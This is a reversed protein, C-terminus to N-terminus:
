LGQLVVLLWRWIIACAQRYVVCQPLLLFIATLELGPKSLADLAVCCSFPFSSGLQLNRFHCVDYELGAPNRTM